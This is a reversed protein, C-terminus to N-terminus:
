VGLGVQILAQSLTAFPLVLVLPDNLLPEAGFRGYWDAVQANRADILLAVGGVETASRICRWGAALLLQRGLGHDRMSTDVALRALRFMPVEYRGVGRQVVAPTRACAVSAPSVSYYGLVRRGDDTPVAVFTKSGGADHNQRAFRQLYTNLDDDSSGAGSSTSHTKVRDGDVQHVPRVRPDVANLQALHHKRDIRTRGSSCTCTENLLM